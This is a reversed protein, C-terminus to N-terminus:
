TAELMALLLMAEDDSQQREIIRREENRVTEFQAEDFYNVEEAEITRTTRLIKYIRKKRRKSKARFQWEARLKAPYHPKLFFTITM